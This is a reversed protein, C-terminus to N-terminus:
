DNQPDARVPPPSPVAERQVEYRLRTSRSSPSDPAYKGQSQGLNASSSLTMFPLPIGTQRTASSRRQFPDIDLLARQQHPINARGSNRDELARIASDRERQIRGKEIEIQDLRRNIDAFEQVRKEESALVQALKLKADTYRKDAQTAAHELKRTQTEHDKLQRAVESREHQLTDIMMTLEQIRAEYRAAADRYEGIRKEFHEVTSELTEDGQRKLRDKESCVHEMIQQAETARAEAHSARQVLRQEAIKAREHAAELRADSQLRVNELTQQLSVAEHNAKAAEKELRHVDKQLREIEITAVQLRQQLSRSSEQMSVREQDAEAIRQGCEHLRRQAEAEREVANNEAREAREYAKAVTAELRKVESASFTKLSELRSNAEQSDHRAQEADHELRVCQTTLAEIEKSLADIQRLKKDREQKVRNETNRINEKAAEVRQANLRAITKRSETDYAVAQDRELKAQEIAERADAERQAVTEERSKLEFIELKLGEMASIMNECDAVTKEHQMRLKRHTERLNDMERRTSDRSVSLERMAKREADLRQLQLDTEENARAALRDLDSRLQTSQKHYQACEREAAHLDENLSEHRVSLDSYQVNLKKLQGLAADREKQLIAIQDQGRKITARASQFNQTIQILQDDRNQGEERLRDVEKQLHTSVEELIGREKDLVEVQQQLMEMQEAAIVNVRESAGAAAGAPLTELSKIRNSLEADLDATLQENEHTLRSIHERDLELQREATGLRSRLEAVHADYAALIPSFIQPSAVWPSLTGTEENGDQDADDELGSISTQGPRNYIGAKQGIRRLETELRAAYSRVHANESQLRHIEDELYIDNHKVQPVPRDLPPRAELGRLLEDIDRAGLELEATSNDHHQSGRHGTSKSRDSDTQTNSHSSDDADRPGRLDEPGLASNGEDLTQALYEEHRGPRSAARWRADRDERPGSM